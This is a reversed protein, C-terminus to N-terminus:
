KQIPGIEESPEGADALVDMGTVAAIERAAITDKKEMIDSHLGFAEPTPFPCYRHKRRQWRHLAMNYRYNKVAFEAANIHRWDDIDQVEMMERRWAAAMLWHEASECYLAAVHYQRAHRELGHYEYNSKRATRPDFPDPKGSWRFDAEMYPFLETVGQANSFHKILYRRVQDDYSSRWLSKLNEAEGFPTRRERGTARAM